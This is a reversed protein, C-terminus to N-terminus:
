INEEALEVLDDFSREATPLSYDWVYVDHKMTLEQACRFQYQNWIAEIRAHVGQLHKTNTDHTEMVNAKVLALPPLCFIMLPEHTYLMELRTSMWVLDTFGAAMDGRILPGYIPESILPHRDYIKREHVPGSLDRDVWAMLSSPDVGRDSSCPRPMVGVGLHKRLRDILTTKGGGDPGEVIIM